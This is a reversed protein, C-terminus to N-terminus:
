KEFMIKLSDWYYEDWGSKVSNFVAEPIDEHTFEIRTGKADEKLIITVKSDHKKPWDDDTTRWTQVIKEDHILELNTGLISGEWVTFKGGVERSIKAKSETLKSHKRSDMLIEYIEHPSAKIIIIQHISKLQKM